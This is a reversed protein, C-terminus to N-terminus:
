KSKHYTNKNYIFRYCLLLMKNEDILNLAKM